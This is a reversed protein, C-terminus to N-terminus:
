TTCADAMFCSVAYVQEFSIAEWNLHYISIYKCTISHASYELPLMPLNIHEDCM